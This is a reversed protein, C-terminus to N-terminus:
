GQKLHVLLAQRLNDRESIKDLLEAQLSRRLAEDEGMRASLDYWENYAVFFRNLIDAAKSDRTQIRDMLESEGLLEEKVGLLQATRNAVWLKFAAVEAPTYNTM